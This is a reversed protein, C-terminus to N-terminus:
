LYLLITVLIKFLVLTMTMYDGDVGLGAGFPKVYDQLCPCMLISNRILFQIVTSGYAFYNISRGVRTHALMSQGANHVNDYLMVIASIGERPHDIAELGLIVRHIFNLSPQGTSPGRDRSGRGSLLLRLRRTNGM